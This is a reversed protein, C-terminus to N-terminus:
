YSNSFFDVYMSLFSHKIRLYGCDSILDIHRKVSDLEEFKPILNPGAEKIGKGATIKVFSLSNFLRSHKM